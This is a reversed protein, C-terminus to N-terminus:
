AGSGPLVLEEDGYENRRGTPVWGQSRYFGPARWAPDSAAWMWLRECGSTRLWAVAEDLLARGLGLGEFGDRVALVSLEGELRDAGSFAVVRGDVEAVWACWTGSAMADGLSRPTIGLEALRAAPIANERTAGRVDFL